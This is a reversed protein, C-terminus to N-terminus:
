THSRSAVDPHHEEARAAAPQDTSAAPRHGWLAIADFIVPLGRIVTLAVALWVIFWGIGRFVENSYISGLLTGDTDHHRFAVMGTLFVFGLAKAYGFLGRMFRGATLWRTLPSRMMNREGFATMGEAFSISRLGDVIFGRTLVLLPVWIPVLDQDAFVVWLVNEVIRDGAIDFVAGFQSSENRRRAVWGDIGDLGITFAILPLCLTIVAVNGFYILAVVIFLLGIRGVTILNAM